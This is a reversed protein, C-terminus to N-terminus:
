ALHNLVGLRALLYPSGLLLRTLPAYPSCHALKNYLPLQRDSRNYPLGHASADGELNTGGGFGSSRSEGFDTPVRAVKMEGNSEFWLQLQRSDTSIAVDSRCSDKM